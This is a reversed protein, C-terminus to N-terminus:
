TSPSDISIWTAVAAALLGGSADHLATGVRHKRGERALPWGTVIVPEGAPFDRHLVAGIRGLLAAGAADERAFYGPCDLAAWAFEPKVRGREDALSDDPIWMAAVGSGAGGPSGAFIRLGDGPLRDPGCVFCRPFPHWSFGAYFVGAETAAEMSPPAPVTVTLPERVAAAILDDGHYLFAEAGVREVRLDRELPPPKKLTVVVDSGGLEWALRGACYGGNASGPPGCFREDIRFIMKRRSGDEM